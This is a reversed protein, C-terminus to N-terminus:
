LANPDFTNFEEDKFPNYEEQEPTKVPKKEGIRKFAETIDSHNGSKLLKEREWRLKELADKSLTTM